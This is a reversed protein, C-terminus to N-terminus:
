CSCKIPETCQGPMYKFFGALVFYYLINRVIKM